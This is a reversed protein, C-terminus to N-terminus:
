VHINQKQEQLNTMRKPRREHELSMSFQADWQDDPHYLKDSRELISVFIFCM